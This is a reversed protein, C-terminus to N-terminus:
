SRTPTSAPTPPPAASRARAHALADVPPAQVLMEGLAPHRVPVRWGSTSIQENEYVEKVNLIPGSPVGTANLM